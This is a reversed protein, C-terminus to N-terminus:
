SPLLPITYWTTADYAVLIVSTKAAIDLSGTTHTLANIADGAFPWVKLVANDADANKIICMDGAVATPLIVGVTADAATVLTFGTAVPAANTQDTGLAVVTATKMAMLGSAGISFPGSLAVSAYKTGSGILMNGATYTVPDIDALEALTFAESYWTVANYAVFRVTAYAAIALENNAGLADIADTTNPWVKLVANANNKIICMAGASATPLLVGKTADAASVLTFGQAVLAADGQISGAAAVTASAM